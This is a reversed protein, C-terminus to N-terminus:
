LSERAIGESRLAIAHMEGCNSKRMAEPSIIDGKIKERLSNVEKSETVYIGYVFIGICIMFLISFAVKKMKLSPRLQSTRPFKSIIHEESSGSSSSGRYPYPDRYRGENSQSGGKDLNVWKKRDAEKVDLAQVRGYDHEWCEGGYKCTTKIAASVDRLTLSLDSSRVTLPNYTVPQVLFKSM